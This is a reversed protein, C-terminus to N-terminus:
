RDAGQAEQLKAVKVSLRDIADALESVLGSEWLRAPATEVFPVRQCIQTVDDVLQEAFSEALPSAQADMPRRLEVIDPQRSM